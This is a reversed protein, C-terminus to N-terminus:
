LHKDKWYNNDLLNQQFASSINRQRITEGTPSLTGRWALLVVTLWLKFIIYCSISIITVFSVIHVVHTEANYPSTQVEPIYRHPRRRGALDDVIACELRSTLCKMRMAIVHKKTEIVKTTLYITWLSLWSGSHRCRRENNADDNHADDNHSRWRREHWTDRVDDTITSLRNSTKTTRESRGDDQNEQSPFWKSGIKKEM